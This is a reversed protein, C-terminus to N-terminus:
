SCQYEPIEEKQKALLHEIISVLTIHSTAYRQNNFLCQIDALRLCKDIFSEIPM